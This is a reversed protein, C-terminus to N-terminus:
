AEDQESEEDQDGGAGVDGAETITTRMLQNRFENKKGIKEIINLEAMSDENYLWRMTCIKARNGLRAQRKGMQVVWSNNPCPEMVTCISGQTFDVSQCVVGLNFLVLWNSDDVVGEESFFKRWLPGNKEREAGDSIRL